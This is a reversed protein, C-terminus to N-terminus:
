SPPKGKGKEKDTCKPREVNWEYEAADKITIRRAGRKVGNKDTRAAGNGGRRRMRISLRQGVETKNNANTRRLNNLKKLKEKLL